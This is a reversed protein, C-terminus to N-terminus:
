SPVDCGPWSPLWLYPTLVCWMDYVSHYIWRHILPVHRHEEIPIANKVMVKVYDSLLCVNIKDIAHFSGLCAIKVSAIGSSVFGCIQTSHEQTSHLPLSSRRRERHVEESSCHVVRHQRECETV